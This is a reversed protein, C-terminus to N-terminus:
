ALFYWRVFLSTMLALLVGQGALVVVRWRRRSGSGALVDGLMTATVPPNIFRYAFVWLVSGLLFILVLKVIWGFIRRPLSRHRRRRYRPISSKPRKAM